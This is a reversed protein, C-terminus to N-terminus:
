ELAMAQYDIIRRLGGGNYVASTHGNVNGAVLISLNQVDCDQVFPEPGKGNALAEALGADSNLGLTRAMSPRTLDCEVLLVRDQGFSAASIALQSALTSVGEGSYCSTIGLTGIAGKAVNGSWPLRCLLSRCYEEVEGRLGWRPQM